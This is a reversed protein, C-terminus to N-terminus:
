NLEAIEIQEPRTAELIPGGRQEITGRVRIRRGELKKPEIGAATFTRENRKLITVTFDRTYRRGFNVYILPGVERVSVVKGEVLTFRGREELLKDPREAPRPIFNADSWLGLRGRRATREHALLEEACARGGIRAAVRAHGAALLTQQLSPGNQQPFAYAVLRAYRDESAGSTKLVVERNLALSEIMRQSAGDGSIEVGALRVERGDTLLLTKADRVAVVSGRGADTMPCSTTQALATTSVAIAFPVIFAVHNMKRRMSLSSHPRM